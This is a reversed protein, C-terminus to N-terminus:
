LKQFDIEEDLSSIDVIGAILLQAEVDILEQEDRIDLKNILINTNPYTYPHM